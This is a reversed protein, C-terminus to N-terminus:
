LTKWLYIKQYCTKQKQQKNVIITEMTKFRM